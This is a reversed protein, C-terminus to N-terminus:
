VDLLIRLRDEVVRMTQEDLRGWRRVLRSTSVSRVMECMAFSVERVGGDPPEIRVHLPVRRETTTLPVIVALQAPGNNIQDASVILAPRTGRQERGRTPDLDVVWIEGRAAMLTFRTSDTPSCSMGSASRPTLSM